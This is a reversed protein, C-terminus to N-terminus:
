SSALSAARASLRAFSLSRRTFRFSETARESTRPSRGAAICSSSSLSYPTM